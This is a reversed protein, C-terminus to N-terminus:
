SSVAELADEHLEVFGVYTAGQVDPSGMLQICRVAEGDPKRPKAKSSALAPMLPGNGINYFPVYRDVVMTPANFPAGTATKLRVLDGSKWKKEM